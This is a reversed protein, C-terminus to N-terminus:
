KGATQSTTKNGTGAPQVLQISDLNVYTKAGIQINLNCDVDSFPNFGLCQNYIEENVYVRESDMGQLLGVYFYPKGTQASVGKEAGLIKMRATVKM